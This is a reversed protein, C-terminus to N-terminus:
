RTGAYCIRIDGDDAVLLYDTRDDYANAIWQADDEDYRISDYEVVLDAMEEANDALWKQAAKIQAASTKGM